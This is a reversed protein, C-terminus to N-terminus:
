KLGLKKASNKLQFHAVILISISSLPMLIAAIAPSLLDLLAFSIGIANYIFALVFLLQLTRRASSLFHLIKPLLHLQDFRILTDCTPFFDVDHSLIGISCDANKLASIDNLGDGVVISFGNSSNGKVFNAKEIPSQNFAVNTEPINLHNAIKIAKEYNDGTCLYIPHKQSLLHIGESLKPNIKEDIEFHAKIEGNYTIFTGNRKVKSNSFTFEDKGIKWAKYQIGKGSKVECPYELLKSHSEFHNSLIKAVPHNSQILMSKVIVEEEPTLFNIIEKVQFGSTLTGTKDFIFNIKQNSLLFLKNNKLYIGNKSLRFRSITNVIPEALALACPCAVILVSVAVNIATLMSTNIWYIFGIIAICLIILSFYKIIGNTIHNDEPQFNKNWYSKWYDYNIPATVELEINQSQLKAGPNITQHKNIKIPTSEGTIFANDISIFDSLAKGEVPVVEGKRILILDGKELSNTPTLKWQNNVKKYAHTPFFDELKSENLFVHLTQNQFYKGILLFFILGSVADFYVGEAFTFNQFCSFLYIITIGLSIPFNIDLHGSKLRQIATQFYFKGSFVISFLCLIMSLNRFLSLFKSDINYDFYEPFSLLMINGFIFGAIGIKIIDSKSNRHNTKNTLSPPYGFKKLLVAVEYISINHTVQITILRASFNVQVSLIAENIQPLRELFLICSSCHIAPISFQILKSAENKYLIFQNAYDPDKLGDFTYTKKTTNSFTIDLENIWQYATLCGQCCFFYEDIKFAYSDCSDDCQKCKRM